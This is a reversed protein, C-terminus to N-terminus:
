ILHFKFDRKDRTQLFDSSNKHNEPFVVQKPIFRQNENIFLFYRLDPNKDENSNFYWGSEPIIDPDGDNDVDVVYMGTAVDPTQDFNFNNSIPEPYSSDKVLDFESQYSSWGIWKDTVDVGDSEFIKIHVNSYDREMYLIIFEYEGDLDIDAVHVSKDDAVIIDNNRESYIKIREFNSSDTIAQDNDFKFFEITQFVNLNTDYLQQENYYNDGTCEGIYGNHEYGTYFVPAFVKDVKDYLFTPDIWNTLILM